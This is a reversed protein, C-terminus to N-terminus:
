RGCWEVLWLRWPLVSRGLDSFVFFLSCESSSGLGRKQSVCSCLGGVFGGVGSGVLVIVWVVVVEVVVQVGVGAQESVTSLVIWWPDWANSTGLFHRCSFLLNALLLGVPSSCPSTGLPCFCLFVVVVVFTGRAEENRLHGHLRFATVVLGGLATSESVPAPVGM